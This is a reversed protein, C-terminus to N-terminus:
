GVTYAYPLAALQSGSLFQPSDAFDDIYLIGRVVTGAPGSPTVTLSITRAQGPNVVFLDYSAHPALSSVAFRWFDGTAPNATTDFQQTVASMTASVTTKPAGGASFPGGTWPVALWLGQSVPTVARSAPFAATATRGASSPEDPNGPVPGPAFM